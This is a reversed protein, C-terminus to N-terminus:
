GSIQFEEFENNSNTKRCKFVFLIVGVVFLSCIISMVVTASDSYQQFKKANTYTFALPNPEDWSTWTNNWLLPNAKPDGDLNSPPIVSLRHKMLIKKLVALIVPRKEALNVM